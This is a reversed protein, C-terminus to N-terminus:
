YGRQASIGGLWVRRVETGDVNLARFPDRGVLTYAMGNADRKHEHQKHKRDKPFKPHQGSSAAKVVRKASRHANKTSNTHQGLFFRSVDLPSVAPAQTPGKTMTRVAAKAQARRAKYAERTENSLREPTFINTM